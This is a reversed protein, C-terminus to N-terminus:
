AVSTEQAEKAQSAGEFAIGQTHGLRLTTKELAYTFQVLFLLILMIILVKLIKM